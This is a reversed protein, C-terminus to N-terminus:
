FDQQILFKTSGLLATQDIEAPRRPETPHVDLQHDPPQLPIVVGGGWVGGGVCVCVCIPLMREHLNITFYKNPDNEGKRQNLQNVM